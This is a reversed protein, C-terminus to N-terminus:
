KAKAKANTETPKATQPKMAAVAAEYAAQTMGGAKVADALSELAKDVATLAAAKAAEAAEKAARVEALEIGAAEWAKRHTERIRYTAVLAKLQGEYSGTGRHKRSKDLPVGAQQVRYLLGAHFAEDEYDALETPTFTVKALAKDLEAYLAERAITARAQGGTGKGTETLHDLKSRLEDRKVGFYQDSMKM